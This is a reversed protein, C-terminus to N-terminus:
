NGLAIVYCDRTSTTDSNSVKVQTLGFPESGAAGVAPPFSAKYSIVSALFANPFPLPLTVFVSGNIPATVQMWQVILGGPIPPFRQYGSGTLVSQLAAVLSAPTIASRTDTGARAQAINAPAIPRYEYNVGDDMFEAVSGAVLEGGILASSDQRVIPATLGTGPTLTSAATNGNSIKVQLITGPIRETYAPTFGVTYANTVGTDLGYYNILAYSVWGAGGSDPNSMNDDITCLWYIGALTASAVTAGLPYGGIATSFASDWAVPGGVNMWRSWATTQNLIGNIDQGFPPVGGAGVPTMNLPVFGDTLSAAGDVVGIQSAVPIPRIFSPGASEGFPIQFKVPIDSAKM